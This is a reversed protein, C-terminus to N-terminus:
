KFGTYISTKFGGGGGGGVGWGRDSCPKVSVEAEYM